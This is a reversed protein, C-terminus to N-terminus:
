ENSEKKQIKFLEKLSEWYHREFEKQDVRIFRWDRQTLRTADECWVKAREDKLQVEIDIRGKTEILFL